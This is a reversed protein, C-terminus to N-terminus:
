LQKVKGDPFAAILGGIGSPDDTNSARRDEKPKVGYAAALILDAPPHKAWFGFILDIDAVCLDDVQEYSRGHAM